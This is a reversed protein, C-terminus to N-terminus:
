VKRELGSTGIEHNNIMATRGIIRQIQSMNRSHRREFRSRVVFRSNNNVFTQLTAIEAVTLDSKIM